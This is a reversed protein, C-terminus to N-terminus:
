EKHNRLSRKIEKILNAINITSYNTLFSLYQNSKNYPPKFRKILKAEVFSAEKWENFRVIAIDTIKNKYPSNAYLHNKLREGINSSCGIYIIEKKSYLIYIGTVLVFHIVSRNIPVFTLIGYPIYKDIIENIEKKFNKM